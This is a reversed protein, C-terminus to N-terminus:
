SWRGSGNEHHLAEPAAGDLSPYLNDLFLRKVLERRSRVGVKDFVNSLHKQVTHESIFLASSIQGTSGGRVVHGVIKREQHTLGYAGARLWAVEHPGAPEVVVVTAGPRGDRRETLDARLTLWRGSRTPVRVRPVLASSRETTPNLAHQLASVVILVPLPLGDRERWGAPLNAVERLWREAAATHHVVRKQEDLVM